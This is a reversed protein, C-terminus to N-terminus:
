ALRTQYRRIVRVSFLLPGPQVGDPDVDKGLWVDTTQVFNSKNASDVLLAWGDDVELGALDATGPDAGLYDDVAAAVADINERYKWGGFYSWKFIWM